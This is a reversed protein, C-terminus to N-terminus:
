VLAESAKTALSSLLPVKVASAGVTVAIEGVVPELAPPVGTVMVPVYKALPAVTVMPPVAAVLTVNTLAVVSVAVIGDPM